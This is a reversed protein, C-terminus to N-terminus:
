LCVILLGSLFAVLLTIWARIAVPRLSSRLFFPSVLLLFLSAVIFFWVMPLLWQHLYQAVVGRGQHYKGEYNWTIKLAIGWLCGLLVVGQAAWFLWKWRRVSTPTSACM